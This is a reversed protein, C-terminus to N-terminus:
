GSGCSTRRTRRNPCWARVIAGPPRGRMLWMGAPCGGWRTTRNSRRISVRPQASPAAGSGPCCGDADGRCRDGTCSRVHAVHRAAAQGRASASGYGPRGKRRSSTRRAHMPIPAWSRATTAASLIRECAPMILNVPGTPLSPGAAAARGLSVQDANRRICSRSGCAVSWCCATALVVAESSGSAALPARRSGPGGAPGTLMWSVSTRAPTVTSSFACPGTARESRLMSASGAIRCAV